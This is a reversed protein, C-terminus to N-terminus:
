WHNKKLIILFSPTQNSFNKESTPLSDVNPKDIIMTPRFALRLSSCFEDWMDTTQRLHTWAAYDAEVKEGTGFAEM